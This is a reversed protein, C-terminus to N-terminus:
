RFNVPFAIKVASSSGTTNPPKRHCEPPHQNGGSDYLIEGSDKRHPTEKWRFLSDSSFRVPLDEPSEFDWRFRKREEPSDEPRFVSLPHIRYLIDGTNCLIYGTYCLGATTSALLNKSLKM